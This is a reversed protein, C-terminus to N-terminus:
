IDIKYFIIYKVVTKMSNTIIKSLIEHESTKSTANYYTRYKWEETSSLDFYLVVPSLM